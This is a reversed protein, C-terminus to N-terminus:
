SRSESTQRPEDSIDEFGSETLQEEYMGEQWLIYSPKEGENQWESLYYAGDNQGLKVDFIKVTTTGDPSLLKTKVPAKAVPNGLKGDIWSTAYARDQETLTKGNLDLVPGSLVESPDFSDPDSIPTEGGSLIRDATQLLESLEPKVEPGTPTEQAMM